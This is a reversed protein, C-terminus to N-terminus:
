EKAAGRPRGASGLDISPPAATDAGQEGQAEAPPAEEQQAGEATDGGGASSEGPVGMAKSVIDIFAKLNNKQEALDTRLQQLEGQVRGHEEGLRRLSRRLLAVHLVLQHLRGFLLRPEGGRSVAIM